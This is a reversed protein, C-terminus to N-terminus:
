CDVQDPFRPCGSVARGGRPHQAGADSPIPFAGDLAAGIAEILADVDDPPFLHATRVGFEHPPPIESAVTPTGSAVAEVPTLGFGEFRSPRVAVRARYCADGAAADNADTEIRCRVAPSTALRELSNREPGSRHYAGQARPGLRSGRPHNSGPEQLAPATIGHAADSSRRAFGAVGSSLVLWSPVTTRPSGASTM